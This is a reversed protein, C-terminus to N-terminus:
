CGPFCSSNPLLLDAYFYVTGSLGEMLSYPNHPEEVVRDADTTWEFFKVARHLYKPDSTVQYLKLFAYANGSM